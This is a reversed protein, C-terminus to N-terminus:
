LMVTGGGKFQGSGYCSWEGELLSAIETVHGNREENFHGIRYCSWEGEM